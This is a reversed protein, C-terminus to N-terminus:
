LEDASFSFGKDFAESNERYIRQFESRDETTDFWVKQKKGPRTEFAHEVAFLYKETFLYRLHMDDESNQDDLGIFQIDFNESLTQIQKNRSFLEKVQEVEINLKRKKETDYYYNRGIVEITTQDNMEPNKQELERCLEVLFELRSNIKKETIDFFYPDIIRFKTCEYIHPTFFKLLSQANMEVKIKKHRFVRRKLAEDSSIVYNKLPIKWDLNDNCIAYELQRHPDTFAKYLAPEPQRTFYSNHKIIGNKTILFDIIDKLKHISESPLKEGKWNQLVDKLPIPFDALLVGDEAGFKTHISRELLSSSCVAFIKLAFSM